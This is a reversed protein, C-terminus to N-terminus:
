PALRERVWQDQERRFRVRDHLRSSRGQWFEMLTPCVRYGGWHEPRPVERNTFAAEFYAEREELVRRSAIVESQPSAWAGLRSDRPRSQFYIESEEQSVREVVGEIRVQRELRDWWFVLAARPNSEVELGKQSKYNTYFVFGREHFAKLLVMRASPAGSRSATALTMANPELVGSDRADQFWHRFLELPDGPVKEEDLTDRKYHQRMQAVDGRDQSM